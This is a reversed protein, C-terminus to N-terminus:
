KKLCFVAYSIVTHSSNLRTSKRDRPSAPCARKIDGFIIPFANAAVAPMDPTEVYPHDLITNPVDSAIGPQWLYQGYSDKLTRVSGLTSRNMLWIANKAYASKLSYACNILGDAQLLSANGSVSSPVTTNTLLGEPKGVGNGNVFSAGETVAFQEAAEMQIQQSMDFYADEMDAYTILVLAYMEHALIEEQGYKLGTTETRQVQEAVWQAAFTATRTPYLISKNETQRVTAVDRIPSYLVIQKIIDQVFDVPALYGGGTDDVSQLAKAEGPGVLKIASKEEASLSSYGKQLAKVYIDTKEKKAAKTDIDGAPNGMNPRKLQTELGSIRDNMREIQTKTEMSVEGVSKIEKDQVDVVNKMDEWTRRMEDYM